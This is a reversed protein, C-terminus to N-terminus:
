SDYSQGARKLPLILKFTTGSKGTAEVAIQGEHDRVIKQVVALGLGTGQEKGYTVFPQFVDERISDPIGCGNDTLSIEVRNDVGRATIQVKGSDAPVAECANQLLNHFARDLKKFDFWGSTVGENAVTIQVGKFEPRLRVATMTRKLAEVVDGHTFQLHEQGKSFELLSSILEAMRDVSARIEDYMAKRQSLELNGESQFEAYALITTLPHRLDHSISSAMRGITALREAHLLDQQSKQLTKRMRDFATTLEALEDRSRVQLPFAFDGKELARVGSVLNALPRTFTHSILFILWSGALVAVLGVGLLLHNLEQLFKTEADYSKLVTLTVPQNGAPALKLSTALFLERGLELEQSLSSEVSTTVNTHAALEQQQAPLLTSVVSEKGYSFAVECSAVRAVADAVQKDVEFGLALVGLVVNDRSAGFYIPRLFVEYLHGGGYWWDRNQETRLTQTLAGHAAVQTYGAASTHLAMVKGTRDALLFLDSGALQWLDASADQITPAHQTTMLARLNPLDALLAASQALGRERQSEFQQFTVVSNHLAERIERRAHNRLYIQVVFLVTCTLVTTTFILSLLFKTRLRIKAM